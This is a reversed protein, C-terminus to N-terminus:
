LNQEHVIFYCVNKLNKGLIDAMYENAMISIDYLNATTEQLFPLMDTLNNPM